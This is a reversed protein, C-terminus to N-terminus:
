TDADASLRRELLGAGRALAPWHIRSAPTGRRYPRLGDPEVAPLGSPRARARAAGGRAAVGLPRVPEVRPLVLVEQAPAAAVASLAVGAVLLPQVDFAEGAGLIAIGLAATAPPRAM